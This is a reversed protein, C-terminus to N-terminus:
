VTQVPDYVWNQLQITLNGNLTRLDDIFEKENVNKKMYIKISIEFMTGFNSSKVKVIEWLDTYKNM